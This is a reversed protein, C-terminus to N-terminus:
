GIPIWTAMNLFKTGSATWSAATVSANVCLTLINSGAATIYTVSIFVTANQGLGYVNTFTQSASFPLTVTFGTTNSTGGATRQHSYWMQRGVIQYLVTRTYDASFGTTASVCTLIRTEFIPRQILNIATFTPVTWTYGAGASLTAAFRGVVACYDTSVAHTITSIACYSENTATVNFESYQRFFPKPCVGLVVGDTANYGLYVFYDGEQTAREAGGSNFTNVAAAITISLAATISRLTNGIKVTVPSSTSPDSGALTKIAVTLAGAAASVVIQGNFMYGEGSPQMNTLFAAVTAATLQPNLGLTNAIAVLDDQIQNLRAADIVTQGDVVSTYSPLSAPYVSTM